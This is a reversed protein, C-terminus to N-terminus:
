NGNSQSEFSYNYIIEPGQSPDEENVPFLLAFIESATLQTPTSLGTTKDYINVTFIDESDFTCYIRIDRSIAISYYNLTRFLINGSGMLFVNKVPFGNYEVPVEVGDHPFTLPSTEQSDDIESLASHFSLQQNNDDVFGFSARLDSYNVSRYPKFQDEHWLFMDSIYIGTTTTTTPQQISVLICVESDDVISSSTVMNNELTLIVNDCETDGEPFPNVSNRAFLVERIEIIRNEFLPYGAFKVSITMVDYGRTEDFEYTVNITGRENYQVDSLRYSTNPYFSDFLELYLFEDREPNDVIIDISPYEDGIVGFSIATTETEASLRRSNRTTSPEYEGEYFNIALIKPLNRDSGNCGILPLLLVGLSMIVFKNFIGKM